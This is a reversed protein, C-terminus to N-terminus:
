ERGGAAAQMHRAELARTVIRVLENENLPLGVCDFAGRRMAELYLPVDVGATVILVPSASPVHELWALLELPRRFCGCLRTVVLDTDHGQIAARVDELSDVEHVQFGFRALSKGLEDLVDQPAKWLVVRGSFDNM